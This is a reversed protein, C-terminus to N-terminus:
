FRARMGAYFSRDPTGFGAIEEYQHNLLNDIRGFLSLNEHVAYDTRLGFVTFADSRGARNRQSSQYLVNGGIRWEDTVRYDLDLSAKHAPLDPLATNSALDNARDYTYAGQLTLRELPRAFASLEIGESRVRDRNGYGGIRGFFPRCAAPLARFQGYAIQDRLDIRFLTLSFDLRDQFLTQDIGADYGVSREPRLGDFGICPDNQEYLSPAVFGTGYSSRFKTGWEPVFWAATGRWTNIGGFQQNDDHRGGLTLTLNRLPEVQVEGFASSTRVKADIDGLAPRGGGANLARQKLREEETELGAVLTVANSVRYAARAELKTKFGDYTDGDLAERVFTRHHWTHNAALTALLRGDMLSLDTGARYYQEQKKIYSDLLDATSTDTPTREWVWRGNLFMQSGEGIAVIGKTQLSKSRYDDAEAGGRKRNFSSYGTTRFTSAETSLTLPGQVGGVGAQTRFLGYSGAELTGHAELPRTPTRTIINIVGASADAGYLASQPGRLVEIREVSEVPINGFEYAVQARAPNAVEVGDVLVLTNRPALGRIRVPTPVGIAGPTNASLGPVTNLADELRNIQRERLEEGTIVSVASGIETVPTPTRTPTVLLTDLRYTAPQDQATAPTSLAILAAMTGASIAAFHRLEPRKM